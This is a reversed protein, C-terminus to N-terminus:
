KKNSFVGYGVMGAVAIAMGALKRMTMVEHLFLWGMSLVLVTKTHGLVQPHAHPLAPPQTTTRM